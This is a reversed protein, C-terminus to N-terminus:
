SVYDLRRGVEAKALPGVRFRHSVSWSLIRGNKAIVAREKIESQVHFYGGIIFLFVVSLIVILSSAAGCCFIRKSPNLRPDVLIERLGIPIRYM